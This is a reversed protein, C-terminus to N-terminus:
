TAHGSSELRFRVGALMMDPTNFRIREGTAAEEGVYGLKDAILQASTIQSKHVAEDTQWESQRLCLAMCARMGLPLSSLPVASVDDQYTIGSTGVYVLSKEQFRIHLETDARGYCLLQSDPAYSVAMFPRGDQILAINLCLAGPADEHNSADVLWFHNWHRRVSYPTPDRGRYVIPIDPQLRSLAKGIVDLVRDDHAISSAKVYHANSYKVYQLIDRVRTLLGHRSRGVGVEQMLQVISETRLWTISTVNAKPFPVDPVDCGLFPCLKEWGEGATIDMVLLDAPRNSFYDLVGAVFRDYGSSFKDADFVTTGYLDLFLQNHAENQKAALKETFQKQCSRLWGERERVTLIFKSGPFARDLERYFSPIPTDTLAEYAELLNRDISSVDGPRYVDIGPYDKVKFGLMQLASALSSTGTKSLGIGFIKM